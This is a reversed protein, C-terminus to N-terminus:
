KNGTPVLRKLEEFWNTVFKIRTIDAPKAREKIRTFIFRRGDPYLDYGRIAGCLLFQFDFLPQPFGVTPNTGLKIDVKMMKAPAWSVYFLERGDASWAPASGGQDTVKIKNNGDPFSRLYVEPRKNEVYAYALWRGDPSFEPCWEQSPSSLFPILKQQQMDWYVIDAGTGPNCQTAALFRGDRSWSSPWLGTPNEILPELRDGAEISIQWIKWSAADSWGFALKGDPSWHPAAAIGDPSLKTLTAREMDFLWLPGSQQVFALRRGDPSLRV